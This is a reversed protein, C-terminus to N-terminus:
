LRSAPGVSSDLIHSKGEYGSSDDARVNNARQIAIRERCHHIEVTAPPDQAVYVCMVPKDALYCHACSSGHHEDLHAPRWFRLVRNRDFLGVPRRTVDRIM